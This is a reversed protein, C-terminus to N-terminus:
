QDYTVKFVTKGLNLDRHHRSVVIKITPRFTVAEKIRWWRKMIILVKVQIIGPAAMLIHRAARKSCLDNNPFRALRQAGFDM